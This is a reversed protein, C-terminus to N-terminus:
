SPFSYQFFARLIHSEHQVSTFISIVGLELRSQRTGALISWKRGSSKPPPSDHICKSILM